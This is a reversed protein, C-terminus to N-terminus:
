PALIRISVSFQTAAEMGFTYFLILLALHRRDGVRAKQRAPGLAQHCLLRSAQRQLRQRLLPLIVAEAAVPPSCCRSQYCRCLVSSDEPPSSCQTDRGNSYGCLLYSM